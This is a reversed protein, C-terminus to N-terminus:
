AEMVADLSEDEGSFFDPNQPVQAAPVVGDVIPQQNPWPTDNNKDGQKGFM